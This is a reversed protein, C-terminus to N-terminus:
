RAKNNNIKVYLGCHCEGKQNQEKFVKCMCKSNESRLVVCPCYGDNNKVAQKLSEFLEKNPNKIIKFM